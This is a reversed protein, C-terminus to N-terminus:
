EESMNDGICWCEWTPNGCENCRRGSGWFKPRVLYPHPEEEDTVTDMTRVRVNAM